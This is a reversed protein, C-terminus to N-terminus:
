TRWQQWGEDLAQQAEQAATRIAAAASTRGHIADAARKELAARAAHASSAAASSGRWSGGWGFLMQATLWAAMATASLLMWGFWSGGM